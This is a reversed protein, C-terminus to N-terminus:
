RYKTKQFKWLLYHPMDELDGLGERHQLFTTLAFTLGGGAGIAGALKDLGAFTYTCLALAATCFLAGRNRLQKMNAISRFRREIKSVSPRVLDNLVQDATQKGAQIERILKRLEFRFDALNHEEDDLIKALDKFPVNSLYPLMFSAHSLELNEEVPGQNLPITPSEVKLDHCIWSEAVSDPDIEMVQFPSPPDTQVLIIPQPRLILRGSEALPAMDTIMRSPTTLAPYFYGPSIQPSGDKIVAGHFPGGEQFNEGRVQIQEPWDEEGEGKCKLTNREGRLFLSTVDCLTVALRISDFSLANMDSKISAKIGPFANLAERIRKDYKRFTSPEGVGPATQEYLERGVERLFM